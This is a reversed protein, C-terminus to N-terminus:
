KANAALNLALSRLGASYGVCWLRDATVSFTTKRRHMAYLNMMTVNNNIVENDFLLDFIYAPTIDRQLFALTDANCDSPPFQFREEVVYSFTPIDLQTIFLVMLRARALQM